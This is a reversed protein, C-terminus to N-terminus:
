TISNYTIIVSYESKRNPHEYPLVIIAKENITKRNCPVWFEFSSNAVACNNKSYVTINVGIKSQPCLCSFDMNIKLLRGMKKSADLNLEINENCSCTDLSVNKFNCNDM